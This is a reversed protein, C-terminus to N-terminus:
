RDTQEKKTAEHVVERSKEIVEAGKDKVDKVEEAIPRGTFPNSWIPQGKGINMGALVGIVAGIVLGWIFSKM